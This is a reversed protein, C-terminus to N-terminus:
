WPTYTFIPGERPSGPEMGGPIELDALFPEEGHTYPVAGGRHSRQVDLIGLRAAVLADYGPRDRHAAHPGYATISCMILRPNRALLTTSDLGLGAMTGPSFAELVVDAGDALALFPDGGPPEVKIVDAGHDALLMGTIPGAIGWSLDVVRVGDLVSAM